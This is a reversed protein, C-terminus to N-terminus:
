AAIVPEDHRVTGATEAAVYADLAARLGPLHLHGNVRRFQSRAEIMGAACWRLATNGNQWNKVNMSHTRAISIMSEISNTSRLTRALTPSVNLRLVTLTEPLGERLSGAAGPHTREVGQGTGRAAGPRGTRVPRPLGGAQALVAAEDPDVQAGRVRRVRVLQGLLEREVRERDLVGERTLLPDLRDPVRGVGEERDVRRREGLRGGGWGESRGPQLDRPDRHEDQGTADHYDALTPVEVDVLHYAAPAVVSVHEPVPDAREHVSQQVDDVVAVELGHLDEVILHLAELVPEEVLVGRRVLQLTLGVPDTAVQDIETADHERHALDHVRHEAVALVDADRGLEIGPVVVEVVV